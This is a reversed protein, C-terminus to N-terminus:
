VDRQSILRATEAVLPALEARVREVTWSATSVASQVAALPRGSRDLVPASVAIQGILIEQDAICFGDHRAAAVSDLIAARDTITHPTLGKLPRADLIANVTDDDLHALMARGSSACYAPMRRGVISAQISLRRVPIRAVFVIDPGDLESLNITERCRDCADILHPMAVAVVMDSSLYGYALDLTRLSLTFRRTADKRLYGIGVLTHTLRQVSSRGIGSRDAIETLGLPVPSAAITELVQMAKDLAAVFLPDERGGAVAPGDKARGKGVMRSMNGTHLM